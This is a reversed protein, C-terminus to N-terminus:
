PENMWIRVLHSPNSSGEKTPLVCFVHSYQTPGLSTSQTSIVINKIGVSSGTSTVSDVEAAALGGATGIENIFSCTVGAALSRDFVDFSINNAPITAAPNDRVVPCTLQLIGTTSNNFVTGSGRLLTGSTEWQQCIGGNTVKDDAGASATVLAVASSVILGRIIFNKFM